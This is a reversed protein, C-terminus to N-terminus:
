QLGQLPETSSITERQTERAFRYLSSFRVFPATRDATAAGAAKTFALDYHELRLYYEGVFM